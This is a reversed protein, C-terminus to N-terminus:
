LYALRCSAPEIDVVVFPHGNGIESELSEVVIFADQSLARRKERVSMPNPNSFMWAKLRLIIGRNLLRAVTEM